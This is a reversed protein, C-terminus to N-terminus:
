VEHKKNDPLDRRVAGCIRALAYALDKVEWHPVRLLEDGRYQVTVHSPYGEGREVVFNNVHVRADM